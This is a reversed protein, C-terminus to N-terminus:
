ITHTQTPTGSTHKTDRTKTKILDAFRGRSDAHRATACTQMPKKQIMGCDHGISGLKSSLYSKFEENNDSTLSPWAETSQWSLSAGPLHVDSACRSLFVEGHM